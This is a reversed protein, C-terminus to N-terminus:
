RRKDWMPPGLGLKSPRMSVVTRLGRTSMPNEKVSQALLIIRVRVLGTANNTKNDKEYEARAKKRAM